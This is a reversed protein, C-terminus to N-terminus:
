PAEKLVMLRLELDDVFVKEDTEPKPNWLYFKLTRGSTVEPLLMGFELYEWSNGYLFPGLHFSRYFVPEDDQLVSCVLMTHETESHEKAQMGIRVYLPHDHPLKLSGTLGFETHEGVFASFKGSHAEYDTIVWTNELTVMPHEGKLPAVSVDIPGDECDLKWVTTHRVLVEDLYDRAKKKTSLFSEWYIDETVRGGPLIGSVTQWSQFTTFVTLLLTMLAISWQMYLRVSRILMALGVAYLLSYDIMVRAGLGGGFHWAWWSSYIFSMLVLFTIAIWGQGPKKIGWIVLGTLSLLLLPAYLLWGKQYSFLFSFWYPNSFDFGEDGYSYVIPKGTQLIWFLIPISGIALGVGLATLSQRRSKLQARLAYWIDIPKEVCIPLLLLVLLNTPRIIVLLALSTVVVLLFKFRRQLFYTQASWLFLSVLAFNFVHSVSFDYSLYYTFNSGLVVVALTLWSLRESFGFQRLFRASFYLGLLFYSWVAIVISYQYLLSYGDPEGGTLYTLAHALLFFPLILLSLGPLTKNVVKGNGADIRFDKFHSGDPPYYKQEYDSVFGYQLDGHIFVAPLYAYYSKMDGNIVRDFTNEPSRMM